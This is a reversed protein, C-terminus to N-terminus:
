LSFIFVSLARGRGRCRDRGQTKSVGHIDREKRATGQLYQTDM